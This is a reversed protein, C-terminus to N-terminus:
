RAYILKIQFKKIKDLIEVPPAKDTVIVDIDKLNGFKTFGIQDFKSSDVVLIIEKAQNILRNKVMADEYNYETLDGTETIGGACLFLKDTYFNSVDDYTMTGVLSNEEKRYKGGLLFVESFPSNKFLMCITISHTVITLNKIDKINLAVERATTGTDFFISDGPKVLTAAAIGIKKKVEVNEMKRISYPPEYSTGRINFVVGQKLIVSSMPDIDRLYRRVTMESVCLKESLDKLSISDVTEIIKLFDLMGKKKSM